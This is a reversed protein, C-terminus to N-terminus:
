LLIMVSYNDLLLYSYSSCVVTLFSLPFVSHVSIKFPVQQLLLFSHMLCDSICSEISWLMSWFMSIDFHSKLHALKRAYISTKFPHSLMELLKWFFRMWWLSFVMYVTYAAYLNRYCCGQHFACGCCSPCDSGEGHSAFDEFGIPPVTSSRRLGEESFRSLTKGPNPNWNPRFRLVTTPSLM